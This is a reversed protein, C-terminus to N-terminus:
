GHKAEVIKVKFGNDTQEVEVKGSVIARLLVDAMKLRHSVVYLRWALFLSLTTIGALVEIM